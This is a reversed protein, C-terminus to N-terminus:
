HIIDAINMTRIHITISYADHQKMNLLRGHPLKNVKAFFIQMNLYEPPPINRINQQLPKM